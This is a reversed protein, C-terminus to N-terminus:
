FTYDSKKFSFNITPEVEVTTDENAHWLYADDTYFTIDQRYVQGKTDFNAVDSNDEINSNFFINFKHAMNINHKVFVLLSPRLHYYFLLERIIADNTIRDRTCVSIRYRITIPLVQARTTTKTNNENMRTTIKDGIFTQYSQRNNNLEWGERTLTIFPMSITDENLKGLITYSNNPNTIQVTNNVKPSNFRARLDEILSKDYAYVSVDEEKIKRETTDRTNESKSM